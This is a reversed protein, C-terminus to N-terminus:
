FKGEIDAQYLKVIAMALATSKPDLGILHSSTYEGLEYLKRQM